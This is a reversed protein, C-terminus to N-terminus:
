LEAEMHRDIMRGAEASSVMPGDRDLLDDQSAGDFDLLMAHHKEGLSISVDYGNWVFKRLGRFHSKVVTGDSRRFTRVIHFIRKTKGNQNVTKERDAFFYPTRLMDIAFTAVDHRKRVRISLGSEAIWFYSNFAFRFVEVAWENALRRAEVTDVQKRKDSTIMDIIPWTTWEMRAFSRGNARYYRPRCVRLIRVSGDEGLAVSFDGMASFRPKERDYYVVGVRYCPQNTAEM